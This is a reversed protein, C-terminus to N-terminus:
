RRVRLFYRSHESEAGNPGMDFLTIVYDDPVLRAAPVEAHAVFGPPLAAGERVPGQWTETGAVTRIVVRGSKMPTGSAGDGELKLDIVDTGAPVVLAPSDTAGRVTSPSIAMAFMRPAVPAPNATHQALEPPPAQRPHEVVWVVGAIALVIGAALALARISIRNRVPLSAARHPHAGAHAAAKLRRITEVRELHPASALYRAEFRHRDAAPLTDDLYEDILREEAAEVVDLAPPTSFYDRELQEAEDDTLDGLLYRRAQLDRDASM